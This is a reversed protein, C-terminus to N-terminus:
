ARRSRDSGRPRRGSWSRPRRPRVGDRREGRWRRGTTGSRRAWRAPARSSRPRTSTRAPRRRPTPPRTSPPPPAPVGAAAGGSVPLSVLVVPHLWGYYRSRLLNLRDGTFTGDLSREHIAPGSVLRGNAVIRVPRDLDVIRDNLFLTVNEIGQAEIRVTNPDAETDVVDVDLTRVAAGRTTENVNVWHALAHRASDLVNWRFRKPVTRRVHSIWEPIGEPPGVDPELGGRRMPAVAPVADSGVVYVPLDAFNPVVDPAVDADDGRVIVGAFFVGHSAALALAESGGELVVRDFDVHYRRLAHWFPGLLAAVRPKGDLSWGGPPAVPALVLWEDHLAALPGAPDHRRRVVEEGPWAKPGGPGVADELEHLTVVVPFPAVENRRAPEEPYERPLRVAYRTPESAGDRPAWEVSTTRSTPDEHRRDTKEVGSPRADDFPRAAYISWSLTDVDALVDRGAARDHALRELLPRRARYWTDSDVNLYARLLAVLEPDLGPPEGRHFPGRRPARAAALRVRPPPPEPPPAEVRVRAPSPPTAFPWNAFLWVFTPMALILTGLTLWARRRRLVDM